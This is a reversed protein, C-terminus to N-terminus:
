KTGVVCVIMRGARIMDCCFYYAPSFSIGNFQDLSGTVEKRTRYEQIEMVERFRDSRAEVNDVLALM